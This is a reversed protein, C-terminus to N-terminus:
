KDIGRTDEKKEKGPEKEPTDKEIKKASFSSAATIVPVVISAESREISDDIDSIPLSPQTTIDFVLSPTRRPIEPSLPVPFEKQQPNPKLPTDTGSTGHADRYRKLIPPSPSASPARSAVGSQLSSTAASQLASRRKPASGISAFMNKLSGGTDEPVPITIDDEYQRDTKRIISNLRSASIAKIYYVNGDDLIPAQSLIQQYRTYSDRLFTLGPAQRDTSPLSLEKNIDERLQQLANSTSISGNANEGIKFYSEITNLIAIGITVIGVGIGVWKQAYKPFTETGFSTIGTLSGIIIVPIKIKAQINRLRRYQELYLLSQQECSRQISHLYVEEDETWILVSEHYEGKKSLVM